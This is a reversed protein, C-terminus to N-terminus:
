CRGREARPTRRAQGAPYEGREAPERMPATRGRRSGPRCSCGATRSARRARRRGSRPRTRWGRVRQGSGLEVDLQPPRVVVPGRCSVRVHDAGAAPQAPGPANPEGKTRYGAVIPMTERLVRVGDNDVDGLRRGSGRGRAASSFRASAAATTGCASRYALRDHLAHRGRSELRHQAPRNRSVSMRATREGGADYLDHAPGLNHGIEHSASDLDIGDVDVVAYAYEDTSSDLAPTYDATGGGREPRDVVLTVLDAGYRARENTRRADWGASTHDKLLAHAARFEESGETVPRGHAPPRRPHRRLARRGGPSRNMRDRDAAGLRAGPARRRGGRPRRHTSSWCTSWPAAARTAEAAAHGTASAACLSAGIGVALVAKVLNARM